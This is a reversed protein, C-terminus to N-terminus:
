EGSMGGMTKSASSILADDRVQDHIGSLGARGAATTVTFVRTTPSMTSIATMSRPEPMSALFRSLMKLGNKM